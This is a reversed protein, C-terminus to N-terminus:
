RGSRLPLCLIGARTRVSPHPYCLSHQFELEIILQQIILQQTIIQQIILQEIVIQEIIFQEIFVVSQQKNNFFQKFPKGVQSAGTGM